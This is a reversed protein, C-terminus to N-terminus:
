LADLITKMTYVDNNVRLRDHRNASASRAPQVNFGNELLSWGGAAPRTVAWAAVAALRGEGAGASVAFEAGALESNGVAAGTALGVATGAGLSDLLKEL